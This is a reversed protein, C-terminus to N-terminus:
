KWRGLLPTSRHKLSSAVPKCLTPLASHKLRLAPEFLDTMVRNRYRDDHASPRNNPNYAPYNTMALVEGTKADMVVVSGSAAQFREVARQLAAYAFYQLRKDISLVLDHGPKAEQLVELEEVVRGLRDRLVRKKGPTGQLWDNYGLEM